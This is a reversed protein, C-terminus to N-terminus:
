CQIVTVMGFIIYFIFFAEEQMFRVRHLIGLYTIIQLSGAIDNNAYLKHFVPSVWFFYPSTSQKGLQRFTGCTCLIVWQFYSLQKQSINVFYKIINILKRQTASAVFVIVRAKNRFCSMWIWYWILKKLHLFSLNWCFMINLAHRPLM